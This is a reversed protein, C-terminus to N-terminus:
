LLTFYVVNWAPQAHHNMGTIGTLQSASILLMVTQSWGPCFLSVAEGMEILQVPHCSGIIGAIHSAFIPLDCDLDAHPVLPLCL